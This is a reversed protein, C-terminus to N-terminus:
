SIDLMEEIKNIEGNKLYIIAQEVLEKQKSNSITKTKLLKVFTECASISGHWKNYIYVRYALTDRIEVTKWIPTNQIVVMARVMKSFSTAKVTEAAKFFMIFKQERIDGSNIDIDIQTCYVKNFNLVLIVLLLMLALLAVTGMTYKKM